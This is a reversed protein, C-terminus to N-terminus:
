ACPRGAPRVVRDRAHLQRAPRRTTGPPRLGSFGLKTEGALLADVMAVAGGVSHLAAGWSGPSTVTDPDLSAGRECAERVQEVHERPHVRLVQDISAEPADRREFGLWGSAEM